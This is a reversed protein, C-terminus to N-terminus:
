KRGMEIKRSFGKGEYFIGCILYELDAYKPSATNQRNSARSGSNSVRGRGQVTYVTRLSFVAGLEPVGTDFQAFVDLECYLSSMKNSIECYRMASFYSRFFNAQRPNRRTAPRMQCILIPPGQGVVRWSIPIFGFHFLLFLSHQQSSRSTIRLYM